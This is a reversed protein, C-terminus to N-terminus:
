KIQNQENQRSAFRVLFDLLFQIHNKATALVASTVFAEHEEEQQALVCNRM